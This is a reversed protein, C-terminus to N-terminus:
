LSCVHEGGDLHGEERKKIYIINQGIGKGGGGSDFPSKGRKALASKGGKGEGRVIM